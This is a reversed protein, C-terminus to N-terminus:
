IQGSSSVFCRSKHRFCYGCTHNIDRCSPLARNYELVFFFDVIYWLLCFVLLLEVFLWGNSRRKNWIQTFIM